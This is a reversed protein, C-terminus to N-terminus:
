FPSPQMEQLARARQRRLRRKQTRTRRGKRVMLVFRGDREETRFTVCPCSGTRPVKHLKPSSLAGTIRVVFVTKEDRSLMWLLRIAQGGPKDAETCEVFVTDVEGNRLRELEQELKEEREMLHALEVAELM